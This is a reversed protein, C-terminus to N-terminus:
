VEKYHNRISSYEGWVPKWTEDFVSSDIREVTFLRLEAEPEKLKFSLSSPLVVPKGKYNVMYTFGNDAFASLEINGDPSKVTVMQSYSILSTILLLCVFLKKM